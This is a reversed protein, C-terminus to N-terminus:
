LEDLEPTQLSPLTAAALLATADPESAPVVAYFGASDLEPMEPTLRVVLLGRHKSCESGLHRLGHWFQRSTPMVNPVDLLVRTSQAGVTAHLIAHVTTAADGHAAGSLAAFIVTVAGGPTAVSVGHPPAAFLPQGDRLRTMPPPSSGDDQAPPKPAAGRERFARAHRRLVLWGVVGCLLVVVWSIWRINATLWVM